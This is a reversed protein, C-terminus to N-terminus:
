KTWITEGEKVKNTPYATILFGEKEIHRAVVCYLRDYVKYYLFVNEDIGSKRIEDPNKLTEIVVKEQNRMISHKKITLYQWYDKSTRVEINLPTKVKFYIEM